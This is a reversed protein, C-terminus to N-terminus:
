EENFKTVCLSDDTKREMNRTGHGPSVENTEDGDFVALNMEALQYVGVTIDAQVSETADVDSYAQNLPSHEVAPYCLLHHM